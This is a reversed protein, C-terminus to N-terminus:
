QIKTYTINKEECTTVQTIYNYFTIEYNNSDKELSFYCATIPFTYPSCRCENCMFLITTDDLLRYKYKNFVGTKDFIIGDNSFTLTDWVGDWHSNTDKEQWSGLLITAINPEPEPQTDENNIVEGKKSDEETKEKKCATCFLLGAVAVVLPWFFIKKM